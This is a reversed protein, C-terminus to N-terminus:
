SRADNRKGHVFCTYKGTFPHKQLPILCAKCLIFITGGNRVREAERRRALEVEIGFELTNKLDIENMTKWYPGVFCVIHGRLLVYLKDGGSNIYATSPGDELGTAVKEFGPNNTFMVELLNSM